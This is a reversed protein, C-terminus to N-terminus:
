RITVKKKTAKGFVGYKKAGYTAVKVNIKKGKKNANATFTTSFTKGTGKVKKDDIYLGKIGKVKKKLKVTVKYTIQNYGGTYYGNFWTTNVWHGPVYRRPIWKTKVVKATVSKIAPAKAGTPVTMTVSKASKAGGIYTSFRLKYKTSSKLKKVVTTKGYKITAFKQWKGKKYVEVNVQSYAGKGNYILEMKNHYSTIIFKSAQPNTPPVTIKITHNIDDRLKAEIEQTGFKYWSSYVPCINVKNVGANSETGKYTFKSTWSTSGNMFVDDTNAPLLECKYECEASKGIAVSAPAAKVPTVKISTAPIYDRYEMQIAFIRTRNFLPDEFGLALYYTGPELTLNYRVGTNNDWNEQKYIFDSANNLKNGKSDYVIISSDATNRKAAMSFTYIARKKVVFKYYQRSSAEYYRETGYIRGEAPVSVADKISDGGELYEYGDDAPKREMASIALNCTHTTKYHYNRAEFTHSDGPFIVFRYRTGDDYIGATGVTNNGGYYPSQLYDGYTVDTEIIFSVAYCKDTDNTVTLHLYSYDMTGSNGEGGAGPLTYNKLMETENLIDSVNIKDDFAPEKAYTTVKFTALIAFMIIAGLLIGRLNKLKM